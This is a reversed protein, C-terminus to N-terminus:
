INNSWTNKISGLEIQNPNVHTITYVDDEGKLRVRSKEKLKPHVPLWVTRLRFNGNDSRYMNVQVHPNKM